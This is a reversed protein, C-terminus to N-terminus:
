LDILRVKSKWNSHKYSLELQLLFIIIFYFYLFDVCLFNLWLFLSIIQIFEEVNRVYSLSITPIKKNLSLSKIKYHPRPLQCHEPLKLHVTFPSLWVYIHMWAGGFGGEWRPQCMGKLLTGHAIYLLDKNTIWKLYLLTYM